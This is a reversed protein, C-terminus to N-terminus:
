QKIFKFNQVARGNSIRGSYIGAELSSIDLSNKNVENENNFKQNVLVRGQVDFIQVEHIGRSPIVFNLETTAPNPFIGLALQESKTENIGVFYKINDRFKVETPLFTNFLLTGSVELYPVHEGKTLWQYKRTYNQYGFSIPVTLTGTPIALKISDIAYKTTVVRLCQATGYPTSITGWGDAETIRYGHEKYAFPILTSSPTAFAFTTSDRDLYNLPFNYLEDRDTYTLPLPLGMYTIGWADVYFMSTTKKYIDCVNTFTAIFLNLSDSTKECYGTSFYSYNLAPEFNRMMQNNAKLSDFKWIFNPGTSKYPTVNANALDATSAMSLRCTDGSVPVNTTTISIQSQGQFIISCFVLLLFKKM